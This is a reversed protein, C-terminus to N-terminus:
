SPTQRERAFRTDTEEIYIEELDSHRALRATLHDEPDLLWADGTDSSFLVLPGIAV